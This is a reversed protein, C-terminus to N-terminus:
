GDGLIQNQDAVPSFLRKAMIRVLITAWVIRDLVVLRLTSMSLM